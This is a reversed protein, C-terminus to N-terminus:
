AMMRKLKECLVVGSERSNASVHNRRNEFVKGLDSACHRPVLALPPNSPKSSEIRSGPKERITNEATPISVSDATAMPARTIASSTHYFKKQVEKM